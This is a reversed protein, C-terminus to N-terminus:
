RVERNFARKDEEVSAIELLTDYVRPDLATLAEGCSQLFIYQNDKNDGLVCPVRSLKHSTNAERALNRREL